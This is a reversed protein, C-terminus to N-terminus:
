LSLSPPNLHKKLFGPIAILLVKSHLVNNYKQKIIEDLNLITSSLSIFVHM